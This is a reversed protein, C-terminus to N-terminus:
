VTGSLTLDGSVPNGPEAPDGIADSVLVLDAEEVRLDRTADGYIGLGSTYHGYLIPDGNEDVPPYTEDPEGDRGTGSGPPPTAVPWLMGGTVSSYVQVATTEQPTGPDILSTVLLDAVGDSDQDSTLEVAVG